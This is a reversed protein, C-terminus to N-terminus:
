PKVKGTSIAMFFILMVLIVALVAFLINKMVKKVGM